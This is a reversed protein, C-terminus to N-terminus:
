QFDSPIDIGKKIWYCYGIRGCGIRVFAGNGLLEYFWGITLKTRKKM